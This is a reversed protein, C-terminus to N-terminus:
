LLGKLKLERALRERELNSNLERIQMELASPGSFVWGVFAIWIMLWITIVTLATAM